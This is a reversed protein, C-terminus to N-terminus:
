PGALFQGDPQLVPRQIFASPLQTQCLRGSGAMPLAELIRKAVADLCRPLQRRGVLRRGNVWIRLTGDSTDYDLRRFTISREM